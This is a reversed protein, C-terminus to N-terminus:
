AAGREEATLIAIAERLMEADMFGFHCDEPELGMKRALQKYAKHRARSLASKSRGTDTMWIQDFLRHAAGRLRRTEANAPRGRPIATGEHSGTWAGCPCVFFVRNAVAPNDPHLKLGSTMVGMGGCEVCVPRNGHLMSEINGIHMRRM